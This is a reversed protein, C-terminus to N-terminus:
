KPNIKDVAEQLVKDWDLKTMPTVKTDEYITMVGHDTITVESDRLYFICTGQVCDWKVKTVYIYCLRSGDELKIFTNLYKDYGHECKRKLEAIENLIIKLQSQKEKLKEEVTM